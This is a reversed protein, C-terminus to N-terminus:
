SYLHTLQIRFPESEGLNHNVHILVSEIKKWKLSRDQLEWEAMVLPYLYFVDDYDDDSASTLMM